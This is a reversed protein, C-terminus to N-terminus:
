YRWPDKLIVKLNRPRFEKDFFVYTGQQDFLAMLDNLNWEILQSDQNDRTLTLVVSEDHPDMAYIFCAWQKCEELGMVKVYVMCDLADAREGWNARLKEKISENM